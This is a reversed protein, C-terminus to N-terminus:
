SKQKNQQTQWLILKRSRGDGALTENGARRALGWIGLCVRRKPNSHQLRWHHHLESAHTFFLLLARSHLSKKQMKLFYKQKRFFVQCTPMTGSRCEAYTTSKCASVGRPPARGRLDNIKLAKRWRLKDRTDLLKEWAFLYKKALGINDRRCAYDARRKCTQALRFLIKKAYHTM